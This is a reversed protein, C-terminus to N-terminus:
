PPRPSPPRRSPPRPGPSPSRPLRRELRLRSSSLRWSRPPRARLRRSSSRRRADRSRSPSPSRSDARLRGRRSRDAGLSCRWADDLRLSLLPEPPSDSDDAEVPDASPEALFCLERAFFDDGLRRVLRFRAALLVVAFLLEGAFFLVGALLVAEELFFVVDAFFVAADLLLEGALFVEEAVLLEGALFVEEACFLGGAFFAAAAFFVDGAFFVEVALFLVLLRVVALFDPGGLFREAAFFDVPRLDVARFDEDRFRVVARFLLEDEEHGRPRRLM